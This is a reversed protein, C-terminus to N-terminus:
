RKNRNENIYKKIIGIDSHPIRKNNILQYNEIGKGLVVIISNSNTDIASKIAKERNIIIKHNNKKFGLIINKFINESSEYRPNDTTIIIEDSYKEAIKAMLPRKSKDRDGGCGFVTIIKRNSSLNSITSLVNTYADPTHAYDVIAFNNNSLEFKEMRGPIQKIYNIANIINSINLKLTICTSISAMINYLNYKGILTTKFNYAKNKYILKGITNNIDGKYEKIYIDSSSDFGYTKYKCKINKVIRKYYIDDKNLIAYSNKDINKLFSLKSKFYNEMNGHYDLHDSSLNTFVGIKYKIDDVRHMDIAHSSVEMPVYDIGGDSMTKLIQHLDISEPTTFGTSVIGGPTSFGLTGLSSSNKNCINLIDNIIITTSTKGNTGTIGIMNLKDSPNNFFNAAIQSMIKRPNKVQLIPVLNTKPSRGNAVVAVAGKELAEFIFDHGDMNKGAIAIFLTGNKVKRSDHAINIIERNDPTGKFSINNVIKKLKM